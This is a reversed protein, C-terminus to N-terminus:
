LFNLPLWKFQLYVISAILLLYLSIIFAITCDMM